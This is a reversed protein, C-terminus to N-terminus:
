SSISPRQHHGGHHEVNALREEVLRTQPLLDGFVRANGGERQHPRDATQDRAALMM